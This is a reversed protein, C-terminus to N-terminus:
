STKIKIEKTLRAVHSRHRAVLGERRSAAGVPEPTVGESVLAFAISPFRLWQTPRSQRSSALPTWSQSGRVARLRRQQSVPYIKM